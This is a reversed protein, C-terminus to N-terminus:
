LMDVVPAASQGNDTAISDPIFRLSVNIEDLWQRVTDENTNWDTALEVTNRPEAGDIGLWSSVLAAQQAPLLAVVGRVREIQTDDIESRRPMALRPDPEPRDIFPYLGTIRKLGRKAVTTVAARRAPTLAALEGLGDLDFYAVVADGEISSLRSLGALVQDRTVGDPLPHLIQPGTMKGERNKIAPLELRIRRKARNLDTYLSRVDIGLENAVEKCSRMPGGDLGFRLRVANAEAPRLFVLWERLGDKTPEDLTSQVRPSSRELRIRKGATCLYGSVSDPALSMADALEKITLVPGGGLGYRLRVAQAERPALFALWERLGAKTQEDLPSQAIARSRAPRRSSTPLSVKEGATRLYVRVLSSAVSMVDAVEKNSLAPSGDLGYRLRVVQAERPSLLALRERLREKTQEDFPPQARRPTVDASAGNIARAADDDTPGAPENM